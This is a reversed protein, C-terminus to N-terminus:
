DHQLAHWWSGRATAHPLPSIAARPGGATGGRAEAVPRDIAHTCEVPAAAKMVEPVLFKLHRAAWLGGPTWRGGGLLHTGILFCLSFIFIEIKLQKRSAKATKAKRRANQQFSRLSGQLNNTPLFMSSIAPFQNKKNKCMGKTAGGAARNSVNGRCKQRKKAQKFGARPACM